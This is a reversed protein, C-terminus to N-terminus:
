NKPCYRFMSCIIEKGRQCWPGCSASPTPGPGAFVLFLGCSILYYRIIRKAWHTEKPTLKM